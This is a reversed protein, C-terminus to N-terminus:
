LSAKKKMHISRRLVKLYDAMHAKQTIGQNTSHIRRRLLVEQMVAYQMDTSKFRDIWDVFEAVKLETNFYGVKEFANRSIMMTGAVYGPMVRNAEKLTPADPSDKVSDDIFQEVFALSMDLDDTSTLFAIQKSLKDPHWLDDSDLFTLYDGSSKRIGTNRAGGIGQNAQRIYLIDASFAQVTGATNDSSGDDIVIVEINSYSQEFVSKLAEGIFREANYAPIIVSILPSAM